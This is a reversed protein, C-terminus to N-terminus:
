KSVYSVSGQKIFITESNGIYKCGQLLYLKNEQERTEKNELRNSAIGISPQSLTKVLLLPIIQLIDSFISVLLSPMLQSNRSLKFLKVVM